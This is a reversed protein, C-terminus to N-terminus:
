KGSNIQGKVVSFTIKTTQSTYSIFLWMNRLYKSPEIVEREVAFVESLTIYTSKTQKQIKKQGKQGQSRM